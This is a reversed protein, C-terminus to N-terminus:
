NEKCMRTVDRNSFFFAQTSLSKQKKPPSLSNEWYTEGRRGPIPWATNARLSQSDIRQSNATQSLAQVTGLHYPSGESAGVFKSSNNNGLRDMKKPSSGDHMSGPPSINAAQKSHIRWLHPASQFFESCIWVKLYNRQKWSWRKSEGGTTDISDTGLADQPVM